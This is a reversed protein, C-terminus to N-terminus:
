SRSYLDRIADFVTESLCLARKTKNPVKDAGLLVNCRLYEMSLEKIMNDHDLNVYPRIWNAIQGNDIDKYDFVMSIPIQAGNLYKAKYGLLLMESYCMMEIFTIQDKDLTERWKEISDTNFIRKGQFHSSNQSWLNGKGDVFSEPDTISECFDIKLFSSLKKAENVPDSILDEYKMTLVRDHMSFSSNSHHWALSSLKRWQRTLFILPYKEEAALKSACVARPDRVVDIVKANPFHRLVHPVFECAWVIKFGIINSKPKGYALGIISICSSLFEKFTSGKMNDIYKEIKPSFPRSAIAIQEKLAGLRNSDFGEELSTEQIKQALVQKVPYFYYDDLPSNDDFDELGSISKAVHNRFEKFFPAFPDSAFAINPHVNLMRALLTTGSRFMGTVFVIKKQNADAM